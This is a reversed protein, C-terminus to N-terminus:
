AKLFEGRVSFYNKFIFLFRPLKIFLPKVEFANINRTVSSVQATVRKGTCSRVNIKFKYSDKNTFGVMQMAFYVKNHYNDIKICLKFINEDFLFLKFLHEASQLQNIVNTKFHFSKTPCVIIKSKHVTQLHELVEKKEFSYYECVINVPCCLETYEESKSYVASIEQLFAEVTYNRNYTTSQQCTPCLQHVIVCKNCFSHGTICQYIQGSM